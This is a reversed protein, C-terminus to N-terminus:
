LSSEIHSLLRRHLDQFDGSSCVLVVDGPALRPVLELVTDADAAPMISPVGLEALRAALADRDLVEEPDLRAHHYPTAVLVM